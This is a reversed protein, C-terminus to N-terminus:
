FTPSDGGGIHKFYIDRLGSCSYLRFKFTFFDLVEEYVAFVIPRYGQEGGM